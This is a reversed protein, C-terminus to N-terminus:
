VLVDNGRLTCEIRSGNGPEKRLGSEPDPFRWPRMVRAVQEGVKEEAGRGFIIKTPNQFEFNKM